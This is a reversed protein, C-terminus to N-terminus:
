VKSGSLRELGHESLTEKLKAVSGRGPIHLDPALEALPVIVFSRDAIGPHPVQLSPTNICEDGYLLVDLDLTRPGWRLGDRVRGHLREIQLLESLLAEPSLQTEILAVANIFDPQTVPGMPLSRYLSSGAIWRSHPLHHLSQIASGVQTIPDSLNSGLGIFARVRGLRTDFSTQLDPM